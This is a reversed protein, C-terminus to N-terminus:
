SVVKVDVQILTPKTAFGLKKMYLVGITAIPSASIDNGSNDIEHFRYTNKTERNFVFQLTTTM